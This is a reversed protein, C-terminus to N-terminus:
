MARGIMKKKKRRQEKEDHVSFRCIKLLQKHLQYHWHCKIHM